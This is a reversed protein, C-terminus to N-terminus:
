NETLMPAFQEPAKLTHRKRDKRVIVSNERISVVRSGNALRDKEHVLAGDIIAQKLDPAIYIMSVASFLVPDVQPPATPLPTGAANFPAGPPANYPPQVANYPPQVANYPPQAAGSPLRATNYPPQAAGSPPRVLNYPPQATNYPPRAPPQPQAAISQADLPVSYGRALSNMPAQTFALAPPADAAQPLLYALPANASGPKLALRGLTKLAETTQQLETRLETSPQGPPAGQSIARVPPAQLLLAVVGGLVLIAILFLLSSLNKSM